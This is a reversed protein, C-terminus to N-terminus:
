VHLDVALRVSACVERLCECACAQECVRDRAHTCRARVSLCRVRVVRARVRARVCAVRRGGRRRQQLKTSTHLAMPSSSPADTAKASQVSHRAGGGARAGLEAAKPLAASRRPDASRASRSRPADRGIARRRERDSGSSLGGLLGSSALGFMLERGTARGGLSRRREDRAVRSGRPM